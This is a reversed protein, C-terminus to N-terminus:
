VLRAEVGHEALRGRLFEILALNSKASVTDFGVLTEILALSDASAM